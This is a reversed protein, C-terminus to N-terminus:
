LTKNREYLERQFKLREAYPQSAKIIQAKLSPAAPDTKSALLLPFMTEVYLEQIKIDPCRPDRGIAERLKQRLYRGLPRSKDKGTQIRDPVDILDPAYREIIKVMEALAPFGIGGEQKSQRSFEPHRGLLRADEKKTMKKTIYGGLYECKSTDLKRVEIDGLGWTNGVMRCTDCCEKWLRRKTRFHQITQGNHCQYFDFLGAHYHPRFTKTGYEGVAFYRMGKQKHYQHRLRKIFNRLDAPDLTPINEYCGDSSLNPMSDDTYTLTIFSNDQYLGAELM